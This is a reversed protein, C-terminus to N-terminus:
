FKWFKQVFDYIRPVFRGTCGNILTESSFWGTCLDSFTEFGLYHEWFGLEETLSLKESVELNAHMEGAGKRRRLDPFTHKRAISVLPASPEGWPVLQMFKVERNLIAEESEEM